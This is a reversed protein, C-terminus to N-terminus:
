ALKVVETIGDILLFSHLDEDFMSCKDNLMLGCFTYKDINVSM